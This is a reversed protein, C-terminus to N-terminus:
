EGNAYSLKLDCVWNENLNDGMNKFDILSLFLFCVTPKIYFYFFTIIVSQLTANKSVTFSNLPQIGPICSIRRQFNKRFELPEVCKFSAFAIPREANM